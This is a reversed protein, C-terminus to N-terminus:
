VGPAMQPSNSVQCGRPCPGHILVRAGEPFLFVQQLWETQRRGHLCETGHSCGCYNIVASILVLIDIFPM